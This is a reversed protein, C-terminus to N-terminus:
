RIPNTNGETFYYELPGHILCRENGELSQIATADIGAIFLAPAGQTVMLGANAALFILFVDPEGTTVNYEALVVRPGSRLLLVATTVRPPEESRSGVLCLGHM